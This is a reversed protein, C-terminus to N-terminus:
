SIVGYAIRGILNKVEETGYMTDILSLPSIYGLARNERKMWGNFKAKNGFVEYGFSYLDAILFVRESIYKDFRAKGKKNHLTAKAVNLVQALTEYDLEAENKLNELEEKSVGDRIASIKDFSNWQHLPVVKAKSSTVKALPNGVKYAIVPEKVKM